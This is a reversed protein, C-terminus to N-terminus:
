HPFELNGPMLTRVTTTVDADFDNKMTTPYTWQMGVYSGRGVLYRVYTINGALTWSVSFRSSDGKQYSVVGGNERASRVVGELTPASAQDINNSGWVSLEAGKGQVTIGDGNDSERPSAFYSPLLVSFGYRANHYQHSQTAKSGSFPSINPTVLDSVEGPSCEFHDQPAQNWSCFFKSGVSPEITLYPASLGVHRWLPGADNRIPVFSSDSGEAIEVRANGQLTRRGTWVSMEVDLSEGPELRGGFPRQAGDAVIHFNPGVDLNARAVVFDNAGATPCVLLVGAPRQGQDEIDTATLSLLSLTSDQSVNTLRVFQPPLNVYGHANAWEIMQPSCSALQEGSWPFTSLDVAAPIWYSTEADDSVGLVHIRLDDVGLSKGGAFTAVIAAAVLTSSILVTLVRRIPSTWKVWGINGLLVLVLTAVLSALLSRLRQDGEPALAAISVSTALGLALVTFTTKGSWELRIQDRFAKFFTLLRRRTVTVM